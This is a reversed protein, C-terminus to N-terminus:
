ELGALRPHRGRQDGVAFACCQQQGEAVFQTVPTTRQLCGGVEHRHEVTSSREFRTPQRYGLLVQKGHEARGGFQGHRVRCELRRWNAVAVGHRM